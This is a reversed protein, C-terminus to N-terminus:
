VEIIGSQQNPSPPPPSSPPSGNSSPPSSSPNSPPRPPLEPVVRGGCHKTWFVELAFLSYNDANEKAKNPDVRKLQQVDPYTYKHDEAIRGNFYPGTLGPFHTYEHIFTEGLPMISPDIKEDSQGEFYRRCIEQRPDKLVSIGKTRFGANRVILPPREEFPVLAGITDPDSCIPEGDPGTYDRPGVIQVEELINSGKGVMNGFIGLFQLVTFITLKMKPLESSYADINKLRMHSLSSWGMVAGDAKRRIRGSTLFYKKYIKMFLKKDNKSAGLLVNVMLIADDIASHIHENQEVTFDNESVRPRGKCRNAWYLETVFYHYSDANYMTFKSQDNQMMCKSQSAGYGNDETKSKKGVLAEYKTYERILLGGPVKLEVYDRDCSHQRYDSLVRISNAQTTFAGDCLM